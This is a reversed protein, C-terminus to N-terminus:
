QLAYKHASHNRRKKWGKEMQRVSDPRRWYEGGAEWEKEEKEEADEKM